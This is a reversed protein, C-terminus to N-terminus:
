DETWTGLAKYLAISNLNNDLRALILQQQANYYERQADLVTLYGDLGSKFREGSLDFTVQTDEALQQLATLRRDITDAVAAADAVERFAQQITSQYTALAADAEARAAEVNGRRRDFDFIPLDIAPTFTWGSSGDGNFLDDISGSAVGVGGTLSVSPFYAARAAGINANSARLRAEAARVDPRDLLVQSSQGVPLNLAVPAPSLIAEELLAGPLPAGVLLQLANMDRRMAAEYQAAQAQAQAVSASARRVDLESATGAAFLERTLDLSETQSEATRNALKLLEHDAALQMWTEAVTGALSIKAAREGEESALYAQLAADNLNRVRGFFDLEWASVGIQAYTSDGFVAAGTSGEDFADGTQVSANAGIAPWRASRSVLLNARAARVNAATVRLDRNEELAIGIVQKLAPSTVVEDWLLPQAAEADSSAGPLAAPVPLEGSSYAPALNVCGALMLTSLATALLSKTNM